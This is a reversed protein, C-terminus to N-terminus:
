CISKSHLYDAFLKDEHLTHNLFWHVLFDIIKEAKDKSPHLRFTNGENSLQEILALHHQKHQELNPYDVRFMMNEESIFHFHAYANLEAILASQYEVQESSYLEKSLRNILNAFFHHQFDIDEINLNYNLKWHIPDQETKM